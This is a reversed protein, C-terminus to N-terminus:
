KGETAALLRKAIAQAKPGYKDDQAVITAIERVDEVSVSGVYGADLIARADTAYEAKGEAKCEEYPAYEIFGNGRQLRSSLAKAAREVDVVPVAAPRCSPCACARCVLVDRLRREQGRHCGYGCKVCRCGGILPVYSHACVPVPVAAHKLRAGLVTAIDGYHPTGTMGLSRVIDEHFKKALLPDDDPVATHPNSLFLHETIRASAVFHPGQTDLTRQAEEPKAFQMARNPDDTYDHPGPGCWWLTPTHNVAQGREILYAVERQGEEVVVVVEANSRSRDEEEEERPGYGETASIFDDHTATLDLLAQAIENADQRADWYNTLRRALWQAAENRTM